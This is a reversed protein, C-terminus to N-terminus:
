QTISGTALCDRGWGSSVFHICRHVLQGFGLNNKLNWRHQTCKFIDCFNHFNMFPQQQTGPSSESVRYLISRSCKVGALVLYAYIKLMLQAFLNANNNPPTGVLCSHHLHCSNHKTSLPRRSPQETDSIMFFM